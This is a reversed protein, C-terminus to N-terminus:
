GSCKRWSSARCLVKHYNNHEPCTHIFICHPNQPSHAPNLQTPTCDCVAAHHACTVSKRWVFNSPVIHHAGGFLEPCLLDCVQVL